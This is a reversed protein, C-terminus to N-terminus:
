ETTRVILVDCPAHRAVREPVSGLFLRSIGSMGRNGVVVLQADLAAATQVLARAPDGEVAHVSARLGEPLAAVADQLAADALARPDDARARPGDAGASSDEAGASPDDAGGRRAGAPEDAARGGHARYASLLHLPADLAAALAAARAVARAATQSGDTGALVPAHLGPIRPAPAASGRWLERAGEALREALPRTGLVAAAAGRLAGSLPAGLGREPLEIELEVVERSYSQRTCGLSSLLEIARRNEAHVLATFHTIGEARARKVLRELLASGLGRRQWDDVVAVAAEARDSGEALRIYRAVGVLADREPDLAVIAEHDHHDVDLLRELQQDSLEQLPMLFRRYRSEPSLEEFTRALRQRDERPDLARM